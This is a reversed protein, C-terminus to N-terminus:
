HISSNRLGTRVLRFVSYEYEMSQVSYMCNRSYHEYPDLQSVSGVGYATLRHPGADVSYSCGLLHFVLLHFVFCDSSQWFPGRIPWGFIDIASPSKVSLSLGMWLERTSSIIGGGDWEM